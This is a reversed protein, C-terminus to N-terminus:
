SAEVDTDDGDDDGGLALKTFFAHFKEVGDGRFDRADRRSLRRSEVGLNAKM